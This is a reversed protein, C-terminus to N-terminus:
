GKADAIGKLASWLASIEAAAQKNTENAAKGEGDAQAYAARNAIFAPTRVTKATLADAAAKTLGSRADTRNLVYLVDGVRAAKQLLGEAAGLGELDKLSPQAVIAIAHACHIADNIVPLFSGPTDVILVDRAAKKSEIVRLARSVTEAGAALLPNRPAKAAGGGPPRRNSHTWILFISALGLAPRKSRM